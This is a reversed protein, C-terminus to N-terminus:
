GKKQDIPYAGSDRRRRIAEGAAPVVQNNDGHAKEIYDTPRLSLEPNLEEAEVIKIFPM